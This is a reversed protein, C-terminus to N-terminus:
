GKEIPKGKERLHDLIADMIKKAGFRYVDTCPLGTESTIEDIADRVEEESKKYGNITVAVVKAQPFMCELKRIEDEPRPMDFDPFGQRKKLFPNHALVIADPWSGYMVMLTECGYAIHSLSGQGEVFLIDRGKKDAELVLRELEGSMFDAILADIVCHADPGMMSMTQGTAVYGTNINRKRAEKMLELIVINKGAYGDTSLVDVVPTKKFRIAGTACDMKRRQKRVDILQVGYKEALDVFEMDDSFFDHLGSVIDLKNMIAEKIIPRWTAPLHGSVPATGIIM